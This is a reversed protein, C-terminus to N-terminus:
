CGHSHRSRRFAWARETLEDREAETLDTEALAADLSHVDANATQWAPDGYRETLVRFRPKPLPLRAIETALSGVPSELVEADGGALMRNPFHPGCASADRGALPLFALLSVLVTWTSRRAM